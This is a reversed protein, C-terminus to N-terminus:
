QLEKIEPVDPLLAKPTTLLAATMELLSGLAAKASMLSAQNAKLIGEIAQPKMAASKKMGGLTTGEAARIGATLQDLTAKQTSLAAALKATEPSRPLAKVMATIAAQEKQAEQCKKLAASIQQSSTNLATGVQETEKQFALFAADADKVKEMGAKLEALPAKLAQFKESFYQRINKAEAPSAVGSLVLAFVLGLIAFGKSHRM